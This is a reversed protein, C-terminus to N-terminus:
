RRRSCAKKSRKKVHHKKHSRFKRRRLGGNRRVFVPGPYKDTYPPPPVKGLYTKDPDSEFDYSHGVPPEILQTFPFLYKQHIYGFSRIGKAFVRKYGNTPQNKDFEVVIQGTYFLNGNGESYDFPDPKLRIGEPPIGNLIYTIREETM